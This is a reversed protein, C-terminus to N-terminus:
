ATAQRRRAEADREMRRYKDPNLIKDVELKASEEFREDSLNGGHLRFVLIDKEEGEARTFKFQQPPQGARGWQLYPRKVEDDEVRIATPNESGDILLCVKM